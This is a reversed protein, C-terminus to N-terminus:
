ILHSLQYLVKSSKKSSKRKYKNQKKQPMKKEVEKIETPIMYSKLGSAMNYLPNAIMSFFGASQPQEELKGEEDGESSESSVYRHRSPQKKVQRAVERWHLQGKSTMHVQIVCNPDNSPFTYNGPELKMEQLRSAIFQDRTMKPRGSVSEKSRRQSRHRVDYDNSRKSTRKSLPDSRGSSSRKGSLVMERKPESDQSPRSSKRDIREFTSKPGKFSNEKAPLMKRKVVNETLQVNRNLDEDMKAQKEALEKIESELQLQRHVLSRYEHLLTRSGEKQSDLTTKLNANEAVFQQRELAFVENAKLAKSIDAKIQKLERDYREYDAALKEQTANSTPQPHTIHSQPPSQRRAPSGQSPTSDDTVTWNWGSPLIGSQSAKSTDLPTASTKFPVQISIPAQATFLHSNISTSSDIPEMHTSHPIPKQPEATMTSKITDM